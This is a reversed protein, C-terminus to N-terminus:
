VPLGSVEAFTGTEFTVETTFLISYIICVLADMMVVSARATKMSQSLNIPPNTLLIVLGGIM